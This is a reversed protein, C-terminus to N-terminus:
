FGMSGARKALKAILAKLVSTAPHSLGGPATYKYTEVFAAPDFGAKLAIYFSRIVVDTEDQHARRKIARSVGSKFFVNVGGSKVLQGFMEDIGFAAICHTYFAAGAQYAPKLHKALITSIRMTESGSHGSRMGIGHSIEHSLFFSIISLFAEELLPLVPYNPRKEVEKFYQAFLDLLTQDIRLESPEYKIGHIGHFLLTISKDLDTVKQLAPKSTKAFGTEPTKDQLEMCQKRLKPVFSPIASFDRSLSLFHPENPVFRIVKPLEDQSLNAARALRGLMKRLLTRVKTHYIPDIGKKDNFHIPIANINAPAHRKTTQMGTLTWRTMWRLATKKDVVFAKNADIGLKDRLFQKEPPTLTLKNKRVHAAVRESVLSLPADYLDYRGNGRYESHMGRKDIAKFVPALRPPVPTSGPGDPNQLRIAM